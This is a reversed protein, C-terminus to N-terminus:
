NNLFFIFESEVRTSSSNLVRTLIWDDNSSSSDFNAIKFELKGPNLVSVAVCRILYIVYQYDLRPPACAAVSFVRVYM